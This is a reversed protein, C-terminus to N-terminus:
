ATERVCVDVGACERRKGYFATEGFLRRTNKMVKNDDSWDGMM